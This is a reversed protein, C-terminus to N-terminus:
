PPFGDTTGPFSVPLSDWVIPNVSGRSSIASRVFRGQWALKVLHQSIIRLVGISCTPTRGCTMRMPTQPPLTAAAMRRAARLLVYVEQALVPTELYVEKVTQAEITGNDCVGFIENGLYRYPFRKDRVNMYSIVGFDASGTKRLNIRTIDALNIRNRAFERITSCLLGHNVQFECDILRSM